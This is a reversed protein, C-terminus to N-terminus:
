PMTIVLYGVAVDLTGDGVTPNNSAGFLLPQNEVNALIQNQTFVSLPPMMLTETSQNQDLLKAQPITQIPIPTSFQDLWVFTILTAGGVLTYATTVFKYRLVCYLPVIVKKPGQAAVIPIPTTALARIQAPTLSM